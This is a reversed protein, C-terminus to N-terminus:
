SYDRLLGRLELRESWAADRPAMSRISRMLECLRTVHKTFTLAEQRGIVDVLL